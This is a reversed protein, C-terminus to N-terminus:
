VSLLVKSFFDPLIKTTKNTKKESPLLPVQGLHSLMVRFKIVTGECVCYGTERGTVVQAKKYKLLVLVAM